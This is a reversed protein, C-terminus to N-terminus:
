HSTTGGMISFPSIRTKVGTRGHVEPTVKTWVRKKVDGDNSFYMEVRKIKLKSHPAKVTQQMKYCRSASLAAGRADLRM